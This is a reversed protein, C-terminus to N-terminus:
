KDTCLCLLILSRGCPVVTQTVYHQLAKDLGTVLDKLLESFQATPMAFFAELSEELIRLVEVASPACHERNAVPSWNKSWVGGVNM